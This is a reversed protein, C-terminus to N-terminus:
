LGGRSIGTCNEGKEAKQSPIKVIDFDIMIFNLWHIKGSAILDRIILVEGGECNLKMLCFDDHNIYKEIFDSARSFQCRIFHSNDIDDKDAFLSAGLGDGFKEQPGTGYLNRGGSFDALGYNHVVLRHYLHEACSTKISEYLKPIPEFTHVVDFCFPKSLVGRVTEGRHGGM